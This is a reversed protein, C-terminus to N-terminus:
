LDTQAARKQIEELSIFAGKGAGPCDPSLAEWSEKSKLNSNWFPWTRCQTPRAEYITCGRKEPDFFTCDGNAYETLSRRGAYLRTHMLLVEGTTKGTLEAIAEIESDDVWVVGPAGTCCNGCQTCTFNLGDRYWPEQESNQDSM